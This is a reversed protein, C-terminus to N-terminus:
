EVYDFEVEYIRVTDDEQIGMRVLEDIVGKKRLIRQFYQTSEYDALNVSDVLNRIWDGEVCYAGDKDVTITFLAEEDEVTYLVNEETESGTMQPFPLRSLLTGTYSMLERVGHSIAACIEFIRWAGLERSESIQEEHEDLWAALQERFRACNEEALPMDMKNAVIIQPRSALKGNYQELEKQILLFDEFPDRGESGGMDIVHLLLRTREVHRLFQHGLGLGQSAGEILGPIDALVFSREGAEYVVGLNPKLTTFHYDAIEPMAATTVSLLTSKGVNPFGVLGVDALLKLELVVELETGAEGARAFNPVQRTSTAFHMNGQGGKGGRILVRREGPEVLDVLVRGTAADKVVTGLPVPILLDAGSKGTMKNKGGQAGNEAMYKRKYRFDALTSANADAVFVVDGGKGGDGGDPGGAAVYKERHFSVVGHGGNGSRVLITAKDIFM